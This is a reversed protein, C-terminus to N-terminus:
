DLATKIRRKQNDKCLAVLIVSLIILIVIMGVFTIDVMFGTLKDTFLANFFNLITEKRYGPLSDSYLSLINSMNIGGNDWYDSTNTVKLYISWSYKAFILSVVPLIVMLKNALKNKKCFQILEVRNFLLADCGIVLMAIVALGFGSDKTLTLVALGLTVSLLNFKGIKNNFYTVLTYGFLVGLIADVYITHYFEYYFTLPIVLIIFLVYGIKKFDSWKVLKFLPLLLSISFINMARYLNGEIFVGTLRQMVYQLLAIAPPYSKFTTTALDHNGLVNLEFMNKVTLGWHSFEDWLSIVRGRHAWWVFVILLCFAMFGPTVINKLFIKKDKILYYGSFAFCLVGLTLVAYYGMQLSFFISFVYMIMIIIMLTVPLTEEFQRKFLHSLSGSISILLLAFVILYM